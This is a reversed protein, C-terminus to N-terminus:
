LGPMQSRVIARYISLLYCENKGHEKQAMKYTEALSPDALKMLSWLKQPGEKPNGQKHVRASRGGSEESLLAEERRKGLTSRADHVKVVSCTPFHADTIQSQGADM